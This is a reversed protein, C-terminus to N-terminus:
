SRSRTFYLRRGHVVRALMAGMNLQLVSPHGRGIAKLSKQPSRKGTVVKAWPPRHRSYIVDPKTGTTRYPEVITIYYAGQRWSILSQGPRPMRQQLVGPLTGRRTEKFTKPVPIRMVPPVRPGIPKYLKPQVPAPQSLKVPSYKVVRPPVYPPVYKPAPIPRYAGLPRAAYAARSVRQATRKMVSRYPARRSEGEEPAARVEREEPAARVEREEPAARVEGEEPAARVEREEPAARVEGEEPAARVEGEEPAARVERMASRANIDPLRTGRSTRTARGPNLENWRELIGKDVYEAWAIDNPTITVREANVRAVIDALRRDIDSIRQALQQVTLTRGGVVVRARGAAQATRLESALAARQRSLDIIDDMATITSRQAGTLRITPKFIQAVTDVSGVFKLKAVQSPTFPKGIVLLTLKNGAIDRTFLVQSPPPLVTGPKLVAEMEVTGLYTKGSPTIAKLLNEDRIILGGKIGGEPIEGFATAQAFRSHFNPSLFLGSGEAGGQVVAGNLFPRIDPTAHVALAGGVKQLETPTLTMTVDGVTATAPKGQIAAAVAADRLEMATKADGVDKVPLRTTTYTLEAAGLPVKKPHFLTEIASRTATGMAKITEVPNALAQIPASVEALAMKFGSKAAQAMRTTATYGRAARAGTAAAGVISAVALVDLAISAAKWAPSMDNWYAITGAIPVFALAMKGVAKWESPRTTSYLQLVRRKQDETLEDYSPVTPIAADDKKFGLAERIYLEQSDTLLRGVRKAKPLALFEHELKKYDAKAQKNLEDIAKNVAELGEKEYLQYLEPHNQKLDKLWRDLEEQQKKQAAEIFANYGQEKYVQYLDPYTRTLEEIQRRQAKDIADKLGSYGQTEYISYLDPDDQKLKELWNNFEMQAVAYAIGLKEEHSGKAEAYATTRSLEEAAEKPMLMTDKTEPDVFPVMVETKGEETTVLYAGTLKQQPQVTESALKLTVWAVDYGATEAKKKASEPSLAEVLVIGGRKLAVKYTKITYYTKTAGECLGKAKAEEIKRLEEETAPITSIPIEEMEPEIKPIVPGPEPEIEPEPEVQRIVPGPEPEVQRIVPRVSPLGYRRSVEQRMWTWFEEQTGRFAMKDERPILAGLEAKTLEEIPVKGALIDAMRQEKRKQAKMEELAMSARYKSAAKQYEASWKPFILMKEKEREWLPVTDRTATMKQLWKNYKAHAEELEKNALKQQEDYWDRFEASMTGLEFLPERAQKGSTAKRNLLAIQYLAWGGTLGQQQVARVIDDISEFRQTPREWAHVHKRARAEAEQQKLKAAARKLFPIDALQTAAQTAASTPMPPPAARMVKEAGTWIQTAGPRRM